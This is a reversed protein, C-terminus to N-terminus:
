ALTGRMLATPLDELYGIRLVPVGAVTRMGPTSGPECVVAVTRVGVGFRQSWSSVERVGPTSGVVLFVISIGAVTAASLSALADVGVDSAGLEVDSMGDLLRGPSLSPIQVPAKAAPRGPERRDPGTVVTLARGDRLARVALSSAACVGLEFEEPSAWSELDRGFAVVLHSRRTEEFQRVMLEGSRAVAKWYVHRPDDGPRYERLAHFSLDSATLDATPQGELDRVFGTSTPPLGITRPHVYVELVESFGARRRFLGLPDGRVSRVPGVQVVGRAEAPITLAHEQTGPSMPLTVAEGGVLVEIRTTWARLRSLDRVGIHATVPHGVSTRTASLRMHVRYRPTGALFPLCLLTLLLCAWGVAILEAWGLLYGTALGAAAACIVIWGLPSTVRRVAALSSAVGRGSRLLHRELARVTTSDDAPQNM